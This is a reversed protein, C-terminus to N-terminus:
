PSCLRHDCDCVRVSAAACRQQRIRVQFTCAELLTCFPEQGVGQQIFAAYAWPVSPICMSRVYETCVGFLSRVRKRILTYINMLHPYGTPTLKIMRLTAIQLRMCTYGRSVLLFRARLIYPTHVSYRRLIHPTHVSYTYEKLATPM